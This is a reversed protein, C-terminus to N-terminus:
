DEEPEDGRLDDEAYDDEVAGPDDPYGIEPAPEEGFEDPIPVWPGGSVAGKRWTRGTVSDTRILTPAGRRLVISRFDYRGPEDGSGEPEEGPTERFELWAGDEMLGKRWSRGTATDTRLLLPPGRRMALSRVEYRGVQSDSGASAEGPSTAQTCGAPLVAGVFAVLLFRLFVEGKM